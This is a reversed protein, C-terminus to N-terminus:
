IKKWVESNIPVTQVKWQPDNFAAIFQRGLIKTVVGQGFLMHNIIDGVQLDTVIDPSAEETAPGLNSSM